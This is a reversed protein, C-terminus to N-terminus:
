AAHQNTVRDFTVHFWPPQDNYGTYAHFRQRWEHREGFVDMASIVLLGDVRTIKREIDKEIFTPLRTLGTVDGPLLHSKFFPMTNLASSYQPEQLKQTGLDFPESHVWVKQPIWIAEASLAPGLGFNKLNGVLIPDVGGHASERELLRVSEAHEPLSVFAREVTEPSVGPIRKGAKVFHIPYRFGGCEFQLHPRQRQRRDSQLERLARTSLYLSVVVGVATFIAGIAQFISSSEAISLHPM